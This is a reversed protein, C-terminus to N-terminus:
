IPVNLDLGDIKEELILSGVIYVHLSVRPKCLLLLCAM